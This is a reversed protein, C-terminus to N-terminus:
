QGYRNDMINIRARSVPPSTVDVYLYAFELRGEVRKGDAHVTAAGQPGRARFSVRCHESGDEGKYQSHLYTRRKGSESVIPSGLRVTVRADQKMLELANEYVRDEFSTFVLTTLLTGVTAILIGVAVVMLAGYGGVETARMPGHDRPDHFFPSLEEKLRKAEAIANQTAEDEPKNVDATKTTTLSRVTSAFVDAAGDVDSPARPLIVHHAGLARFGRQDLRVVPLSGAALALVGVGGGGIVGHVSSVGDLTAYSCTALVGNARGPSSLTHVGRLDLRLCGREFM